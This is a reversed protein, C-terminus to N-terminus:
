PPSSCRTIRSSATMREKGRSYPGGPGRAEGGAGQEAHVDAVRARTGAGAEAQDIGGGGRGDAADVHAGRLRKAGSARQKAPRAQARHAEFALRARGESALPRPALALAAERTRWETVATLGAGDGTGQTLAKVGLGGPDRARQGQLMGGRQAHLRK